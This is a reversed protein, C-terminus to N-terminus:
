YRTDATEQLLGNTRVSSIAQQDSNQFQQQSPTFCSRQLTETSVLSSKSWGGSMNFDRLRSKAVSQAMAVESSARHGVKGSVPTTHISFKEAANRERSVRNPPVISCDFDVQGFIQCQSIGSSNGKSIIQQDSRLVSLDSSFCQFDEHELFDNFESDSEDIVIPCKQEEDVTCYKSAENYRQFLDVNSWEDSVQRVFPSSSSRMLDSGLRSVNQTPVSTRVDNQQFM